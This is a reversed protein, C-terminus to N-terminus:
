IALVSPRVTGGVSSARASWTISYPTRKGYAVHEVGKTRLIIDIGRRVVKETRDLASGAPLQVVNILYGQDQEPIFGTPTKSFEVAAAGILGAYIVLVIIAGRVLRRTLNGYGSSLRDFGRNFRNFARYLLRRALGARSLDHDYHAKFLVACLAPSLTLSVFCSIVTSASITM